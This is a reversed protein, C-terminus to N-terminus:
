EYLRWARSNQWVPTNTRTDIIAIRCIKEINRAMFRYYNRWRNSGNRQLEVRCHHSILKRRAKAIGLEELLELVQETCEYVDPVQTISIAKVNLNNANNIKM